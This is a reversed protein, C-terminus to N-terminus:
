GTKSLLKETLQWLQEAVADNQAEPSPVALRGRDFYTGTTDRNEPTLAVQVIGKAAEAPKIATYMVLKMLWRWLTPNDSGFRTAVFGPHLSSVSAGGSLRRSLARSYLINMLKTRQYQKWGNYRRTRMEPDDLDLKAGHHAGSAVNIIRGQAAQLAPLIGATFAACGLHNLAFTREHGEATEERRYYLSGANNILLDIKPNQRALLEGAARADRVLALDAAQFSISPNGTQARLIETMRRGRLPSRAVGVVKWGANALARVVEFGIGSTAGTVVAIRPSAKEVMAM